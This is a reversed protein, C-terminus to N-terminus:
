PFVQICAALHLNYSLIYFKDIWMTVLVGTEELRRGDRCHQWTLQWMLLHSCVSYSIRRDCNRHSMGLIHHWMWQFMHARMSLYRDGYTSARRYTQSLPSLVNYCNMGWCCVKMISSRKKLSPSGCPTVANWNPFEIKLCDMRCLPAGGINM